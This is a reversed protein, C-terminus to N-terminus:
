SLSALLKYMKHEGLYASNIMFIVLAMRKEAHTAPLRTELVSWDSFAKPKQCQGEFVIWDDGIVWMDVAWVAVMQVVREAECDCVVCVSRIGGM